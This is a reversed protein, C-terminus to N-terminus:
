NEGDSKKRRREVALIHATLCDRVFKDQMYKQSIEEAAALMEEYFKDGDASYYKQCFKYFDQFFLWQESGKEFKKEM